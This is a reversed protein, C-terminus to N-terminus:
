KSYSMRKAPRTSTIRSAKRFYFYSLLIRINKIEKKKMGQFIQAGRNLKSLLRRFSSKAQHKLSVRTQSRTPSMSAEILIKNMQEHTHVIGVTSTDTTFSPNVTSLTDQPVTM